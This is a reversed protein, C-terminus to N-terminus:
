ELQMAVCISLRISRHTVLSAGGGAVHCLFYVLAEGPGSSLSWGFLSRAADIAQDYRVGASSLALGDM